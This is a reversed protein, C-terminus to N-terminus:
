RAHMSVSQDQLIGTVCRPNATRGRASHRSVHGENRETRVTGVSRVRESLHRSASAREMTPAARGSRSGHPPAQGTAQHEDHARTRTPICGASPPLCPPAHSSPVANRPGAVSIAVNPFLVLPLLGIIGVLVGWWIVRRLHGPTGVVFFLGPQSEEHSALPRYQLRKPSHPVGRVGAQRDTERELRRLRARPSHSQRQSRCSCPSWCSYYLGLRLAQTPICSSISCM